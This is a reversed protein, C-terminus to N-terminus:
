QKVIMYSYPETGFWGRAVSGSGKLESRHKINWDQHQFVLVLHNKQSLLPPDEVTVEM